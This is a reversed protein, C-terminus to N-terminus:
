DEPPRTPLGGVDEPSMVTTMYRRGHDLALMEAPVVVSRGGADFWGEDVAVAFARIQGGSTGLVAEVEGVTERDANEIRMGELADAELGSFTADGDLEVLARVEEPDLTRAQPRTTEPAYVDPDAGMGPGDAPASDTGAEGDGSATADGSVAPDAPVIADRETSTAAPSPDDSSQAAAPVSPVAAGAASLVVALALTPRRLSVRPIGDSPTNSAETM